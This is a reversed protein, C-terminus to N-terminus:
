GKPGGKKYNQQDNNKALQAIMVKLEDIQSQVDTGNQGSTAIPAQTQPFFETFNFYRYPKLVGRADREKIVMTNNNWNILFTMVNPLTGYREVAADDEVFDIAVNPMQTQNFGFNPGTYGGGNQPPVGFGMNNM